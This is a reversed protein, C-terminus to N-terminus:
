ICSAKELRNIEEQMKRLIELAKARDLQYQKADATMQDFQDILSKAEEHTLTVSGDQNDTAAYAVACSLLVILALRRM